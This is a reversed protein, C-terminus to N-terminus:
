ACYGAILNQIYLQTDSPKAVTFTQTGAVTLKVKQLAKMKDLVSSRTYEPHQAYLPALAKNMHWFLYYALMCIFVHAKIRDDTRHYVPRIELQVTKMNRFAQEVNILSKYAEAIEHISMVDSQVSSRIVYLGDYKEENRVIDQKVSYIIKMDLVDWIFYKETKYKAFVKAARAALTKADTKRKPVAIKELETQTKEIVAARTERENERRKPNLRLAYRACPEDPLIVETTTNEDFLSLQVNKEECLTKMASHTLATITDIGDCTNINKQTLMGRDGVIIFRGIGYKDKIEAVKAQLTAGDNTNGPFVEVAIPCGDKACILAIVIQKKGRKRDRNYGYRSLKSYEYEGELYSSTIDYLIVSGTKLHKAALKKQIQKQRAFLRDMSDYCHKDVNIDKESIGCIEWLCSIQPIKSLSLKSGQYVVRGIIMALADRVWPESRSYIMKDLGIRKSLRYLLNSAGYERGESIIIDDRKIVDGDFAAKMALLREMSLGNIRSVTQHKIKGDERYSNRIYGSPQNKGPMIEFHLAESKLKM